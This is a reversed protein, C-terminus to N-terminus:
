AARKVDRPKEKKARSGKGSDAWDQDFVSLIKRAVAPNHIIL